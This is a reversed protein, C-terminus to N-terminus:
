LIKLIEKAAKTSSKEVNGFGMLALSEHSESIQKQALSKNEILDKVKRFIKEGTCNKQLMEPIIEKNAILNILNAFKIKIM